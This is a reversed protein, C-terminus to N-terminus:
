RRALNMNEIVSVREGERWAEANSATILRTSGDPLRITFEYYTAPQPKSAATSATPVEPASDGSSVERKAVIAGCGTCRPRGQNRHAAKVRSTSASAFGADSAPHGFGARASEETGILFVTACAAVLLQRWADNFRATVTGADPEGDDADGAALYAISQSFV